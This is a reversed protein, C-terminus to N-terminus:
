GLLRWATPFGSPPRIKPPRWSAGDVVWVACANNNAANFAFWRVQSWQIRLVAQYATCLKDVRDAIKAAVNDGVLAFAYDCM